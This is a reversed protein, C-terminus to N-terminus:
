RVYKKPNFDRENRIVWVPLSWYDRHGDFQGREAKGQAILLRLKNLSIMDAIENRDDWLWLWVDHHKNWKGLQELKKLKFKHSEGGSSGKGTGQVEVLFPTGRDAVQCVYDPSHRIFEDLAWTDIQTDDLDLGFRDYKYPFLEEFKKESHKWMPDSVRQAFTKDSYSM